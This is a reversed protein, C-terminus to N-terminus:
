SRQTRHKYLRELGSIETILLKRARQKLRGKRSDRFGASQSADPPPPAASSKKKKSRAPPATSFAASRKKRIDFKSPGGPCEMLSKYAGASVCQTSLKQKAGSAQAAWGVNSLLVLASACLLASYSRVNM